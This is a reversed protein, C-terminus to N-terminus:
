ERERREVRWRGIREKVSESGLRAEKVRGTKRKAPKRNSDTSYYGERCREEEQERGVGKARFSKYDECGRLRFLGGKM